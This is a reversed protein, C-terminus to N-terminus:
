APWVAHRSNTIYALQALMKEHKIWKTMFDVPMNATDVKVM